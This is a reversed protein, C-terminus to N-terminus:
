VKKPFEGSERLRDALTLLLNVEAVLAKEITERCSQGLYRKFGTVAEPALERLYTACETVRADLESAPCIMSALGLTSAEHAGFKRGTLLLENARAHGMTAPLLATAGGTACLGLRAEPFFGQADDTFISLDCNLVWELGGGVAWGHVAAVVPKDGFMIQRSVDQLMNVTCELEDRRGYEAPMAKLDDGACFARGRGRLVIVAVEPSTMCELLAAHLAHVLARNIANLRSPRNLWIECIGGELRTEVPASERDIADASPKSM